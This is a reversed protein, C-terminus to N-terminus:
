VTAQRLKVALQQVKVAYAQGDPGLAHRKGANYAGLAQHVDAGSWDLLDRLFACCLHLNTAPDCLEALFTGAFGRERAVGGMMQLLGWSTKQGVWETPGSCGPKSPFDDPVDDGELRLPQQTRVDVFYRYAPEYRSAWPNGGSETQIQARVLWRELRYSASVEDILVDLAPTM